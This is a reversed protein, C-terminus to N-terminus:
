RERRPVEPLPRDRAADQGDPASHAEPAGPFRIRLLAGGEPRNEAHVEGGHHEAAKRVIALGLGSGGAARAGASRYFREFVHPLDAPPIGPGEDAVALEGGSLLVQVTGSPPSFKVANDLLNTVARSLETESGMLVWPELRVSFAAAPARRRVREVADRVVDDLWVPTHLAPTEDERALEVLDDVLTTLEGLQAKVDDLLQEEGGRPLTREPHNRIQILLEINARLSTLPTRLEHGADSVLQRQRVRSSNLATLMANFSRTLESIERGGTSEIPTTDLDQTRAIRTAARTLRRIPSLGAGAVAFGAAAALSVAGLGVIVSRLAFRLVARDVTSLSRALVIVNGDAGHVTVMRVHVDGSHASRLVFSPGGDAVVARVDTMDVPVPLTTGPPTFISGNYVTAVSIGLTALMGADHQSGPRKDPDRAFSQAQSVLTQDIETRLGAQLMAYAAFSVVVITMIVAGAALLAVRSGLSLPHPSLRRM